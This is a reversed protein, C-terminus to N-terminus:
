EYNEGPTTESQGTLKNQALETLVRPLDLIADFARIAGQRVRLDSDTERVAGGLGELMGQRNKALEDLYHLWFTNHQLAEYDAILKKLASEALADM